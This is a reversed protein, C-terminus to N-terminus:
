WYGRYFSVILPFGDALGTLKVSEKRHDPLELDPFRGGVVLDARMGAEERELTFEAPVAGVRDGGGPGARRGPVSAVRDPYV